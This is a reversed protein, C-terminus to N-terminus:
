QGSRPIMSLSIRIMVDSGRRIPLRAQVRLLVERSTGLIKAARVLGHVAVLEAVRTIVEEGTMNIPDDSVPSKNNATQSMGGNHRRRDVKEPVADKRETAISTSQM